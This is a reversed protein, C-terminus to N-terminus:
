FVLFGVQLPVTTIWLEEEGSLNRIVKLGSGFQLTVDNEVLVKINERNYPTSSDWCAVALPDLLVFFLNGNRDM